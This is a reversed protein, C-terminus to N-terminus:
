CLWAQPRSQEWSSGSRKKSSEPFMSKIIQAFPMGIEEGTGMSRELTEMFEKHVRETEQRKVEAREPAVNLCEDPPSKRHRELSDSRAFFDGCDECFSIKLPHAEAMDCHRKFNGWARFEAKPCLRYRIKSVAKHEWETETASLLTKYGKGFERSMQIPEEEAQQLIISGIRHLVEEEVREEVWPPQQGQVTTEVWDQQFSPGLSSHHYMGQANPAMLLEAGHGAEKSIGNRSEPIRTEPKHCTRAVSRVAELVGGNDGRVRRHSAMEYNNAVVSDGNGYPAEVERRRKGLAVSFVSTAPGVEVIDTTTPISWTAEDTYWAAPRPPSCVGTNSAPLAEGNCLLRSFVCTKPVLSTIFEAFNADYESAVPGPECSNDPASSPGSQISKEPDLLWALEQPTAPNTSCSPM